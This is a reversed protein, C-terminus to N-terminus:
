QAGPLAVPSPRTVADVLGNHRAACEHYTAAWEKMTLAIAGATGDSLQSLSVPCKVLLSQQM